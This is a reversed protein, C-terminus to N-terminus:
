NYLEVITHLPVAYKGGDGACECFVYQDSKAIVRVPMAVGYIYAVDGVLAMSAPVFATAPGERRKLTVSAPVEQVIKQPLKLGPRVVEQRVRPRTLRRSRKM